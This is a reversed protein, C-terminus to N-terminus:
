FSKISLYIDELYGDFLHEEILNGDLFYIKALHGAVSQISQPGFQFRRQLSLAEIIM